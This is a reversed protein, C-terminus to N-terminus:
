SQVDPVRDLSWMDVLDRGPTKSSMSSGSSCPSPTMYSPADMPLKQSLQMLIWSWSGQWSEVQGRLRKRSDQLVHLNRIFRSITDSLLSCDKSSETFNEDLNVMLFGTLVGGTRKTEEQLRPPCPSEQYVQLHHWIPPLMRQFSRNFKWRSQIDPVWDLSCMDELDKGPTKSSM